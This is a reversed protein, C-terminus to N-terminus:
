KNSKIVTAKLGVKELDRVAKEAANFDPFKGATLRTNGGTAGTTKLTLKLGKDFFRDQEVAAKGERAYSGAYLAYKDHEKMVFANPAIKQLKKLEAQAVKPDDYETLLLRYSAEGKRSITKRVPKIGANEIRTIASKLEDADFDGTIELQYSGSETKVTGVPKDSKKEVSKLPATVKASTDQTKEVLQKEAQPEEIKKKASDIVSANIGADKLKKVAKEAEKRDAFNGATVKVVKVTVSATKASLKVGKGSLRNMEQASRSQRLYSGAYVSYNGQEKVMFADPAVQQLKKFETVAVGQNDFDALFLRHMTEAKSSNYQSVPTVGAKKLKTLVGKVESPAFDGGIELAYGGSSPKNTQKVEKAAPSTSSTKDVKKGAESAKTQTAAPPQTKHQEKASSGGKDAVAAPKVPEPKAAAVPKAQTSPAPKVQEGVPTTQVVAQTQAAGKVEVPSAEGGKDSSQVERAPIPKKTQTPQNEVPKAAEERPKIVGTFLYLYAFGAVMLLLILLLVKQSKPKTTTTAEGEDKNRSSGKFM